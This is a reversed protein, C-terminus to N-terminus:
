RLHELADLRESLLVPHDDGVDEVRAVAVQVRQDTVVAAVVSLGLPGLLQRALDEVRAQVGAARDRALVADAHVLLLVHRLHEVLGIEVGELPQTAREVRRPERIWALHHRRRPEAALDGARVTLMRELRGAQRLAELRISRSPSALSIRSCPVALRATRGTPPPVLSPQPVGPGSPATSRSVAPRSAIASCLTPSKVATSPAPTRSASACATNAASPWISASSGGSPAESPAVTPPM